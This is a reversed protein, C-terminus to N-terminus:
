TRSNTSHRRIVERGYVQEAYLRNHASCRLRLNEMTHEGGLAFPHIHDLQLSHRESCRRGDPATYTCQCGDRLAVADRIAVPIHRSSKAAVVRKARADRRAQRAVPAHRKVYQALARRLVEQMTSAGGMLARAEEYLRMFETDAEFTISFRPAVEPLPAKGPPLLNQSATESQVKVSRVVIKERKPAVPQKLPAVLIEVERKSCGSAAKLLPGKNESTMVKVLEAAGCLHLAGSRLKEYLEPHSRLGRAVSIRRYAGAESYGLGQTCFAFLSSYGKERYSGRTDLEALFAVIEATAERERQRLETLGSFLEADAIEELRPAQM